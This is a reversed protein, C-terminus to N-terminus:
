SIAQVASTVTSASELLVTFCLITLSMVFSAVQYLHIGLLLLLWLLTPRHQPLFQLLLNLLPLFALVAVLIMHLLNLFQVKWPRYHLAIFCFPVRLNLSM